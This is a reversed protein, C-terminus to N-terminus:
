DEFRIKKNPPTDATDMPKPRNKHDFLGARVFRKAAGQDLTPRNYRHDYIEKERMMAAKIRTLEDKIGHKNPDLGIIKYYMWYLSNISYSLHLDYKVKEELTFAEYNKYDERAIALNQRIREICQSLTENKNIFATDNKLEGYDFDEVELTDM